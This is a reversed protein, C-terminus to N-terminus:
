DENMLNMENLANMLERHTKMNKQEISLEIGKNYLAAAKIHNGKKEYLKAAHYYTPLYSEHDQLLMSFYELAKEEDIRTYETAIAYINFPDKPEEKLFNFLQTLRANEM